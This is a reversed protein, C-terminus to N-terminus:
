KVVVLRVEFTSEERLNVLDQPTGKAPQSGDELTYVVVWQSPTHFSHVLSEQIRDYLGSNEIFRM